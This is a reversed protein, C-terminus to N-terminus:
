GVHVTKVDFRFYVPHKYVFSRAYALGSESVMLFRRERPPVGLKELVREDSRLVIKTNTLQLVVDNLDDPMHTAFVVSIGRSRGLRTIRTLHSEILAKEEETRVQPFFLHAEDILLVMARDRVHVRGMYPYARDLLRYLVLRQQQTSLGGLNVVTYGRGFVFGYNPEEIRVSVGDIREEIDFFGMEVLVLLSRVINEMTGSHVGLEDGIVEYNLKRRGREVQDSPQVLYDYIGGFTVRGRDVGMRSLTANIVKEYFMRAQQTLMGTMKDVHYIVDRTRLAWPILRVYAVRDDSGWKVKVEADVYSLVVVDGRQKYKIRCKIRRVNFGFSNFVRRVYGMLLARAVARVVDRPSGKPVKRMIRGLVGRTVPYLVRVPVGSLALHHYHGVVDLAVVTVRVNSDNVLEYAMNKMLTTKGSGTTGVILVHHKLAGLTLKVPNGEVKDGTPLALTGLELGDAPLGLMGSVEGVAPLRVLSHIMVPNSPPRCGDGGCEAILELAVIKPIFRLEMGLEQDISLVPTRAVAYVDEVRAEVVRALYRRGDGEIVLYEGVTFDVDCNSIMYVRAEELTISSPVQRSIIGVYSVCDLGRM